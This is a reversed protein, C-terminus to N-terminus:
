AAELAQSAVLISAHLGAAADHNGHDSLLSWILRDDCRFRCVLMNSQAIRVMQSTTLRDIIDVVVDGLGLRVQAEARNERIMHQAVVLYSLNAERIENQLRQMKDDTNTM